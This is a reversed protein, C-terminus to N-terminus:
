TGPKTVMFFVIAIVLVGLIAGSMQVRKGLERYRPSERGDSGLVEIQGRLSPTFIAVAIAVVLVYGVIGLVIWLQGFSWHGELVTLIGAILLVGYAPNAVRDDLFKIGRLAFLENEPSHRARTLWVGYTVNTGVAVIAALVHVFKLGTYLTVGLV